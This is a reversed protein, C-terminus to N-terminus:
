FGLDILITYSDESKRIELDYFQDKWFYKHEEIKMMLEKEQLEREKKLKKFYKKSDRKTKFHIIPIGEDIKEFIPISLFELTDFKNPLNFLKVNYFIPIPIVELTDTPNVNIFEFFGARNCSVIGDSIEIRTLGFEKTDDQFEISGSIVQCGVSTVSLYLYFTLFIQKFTMM